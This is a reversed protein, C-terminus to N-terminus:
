QTVTLLVVADDVSDLHHRMPPVAAHDGAGLYLEEDGAVLRVRGVLVQLAAATPADHEALSQGTVLALLTQKLPAHGGPILTRAARGARSGRAQDLLETAAAPLNTVDDAASAPGPM